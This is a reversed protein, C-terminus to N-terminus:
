PHAARAIAKYRGQTAWLRVQEEVSFREAAPRSFKSELSFAHAELPVTFHLKTNVFSRVFLECYLELGLVQFQVTHVLAHFLARETLKENFVVVDLFTLSNLHTFEPLNVFGRAKAEAHFPPNAVREGNLQVIRVGDLLEPSFYPWMAAKLEPSLPVASRLYRERQERLYSAVLDIAELVQEPTLAAATEAVAEAEPIKKQISSYYESLANAAEVSKRLVDRQGYRALDELSFRLRLQYTACHASLLELEAHRLESNMQAISIRDEPDHWSYM